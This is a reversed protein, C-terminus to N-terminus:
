ATKSHSQQGEVLAIEADTLGYLRYVIRDILDDTAKIRTKLPTLTNVAASFENVLTDRVNSPCPDPVVKNKKLVALLDEFTGNHFDKIRTKNNQEEVSGKLIEKELWSLFVLIRSQKDKNLRTM